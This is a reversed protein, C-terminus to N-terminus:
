HSWTQALAHLTGYKHLPGQCLVWRARTCDMGIAPGGDDIVQMSQGSATSDSRGSSSGGSSKLVALRKEGVNPTVPGLQVPEFLGSNWVTGQSSGSDREKQQRPVAFEDAGGAHLSTSALRGHHHDVALCVHDRDPTWLGDTRFCVAWAQSEAM